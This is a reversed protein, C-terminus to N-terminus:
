LRAELFRRLKLSSDLTPLFLTCGVFDDDEITFVNQIFLLQSDESAFRIIPMNLLAGLMDIAYAPVTSKTELDTMMYVANMYSSAMINGIELLASKEYDSMDGLGNLLELGLALLISQAIQPKFLILFVGDLEGSIDLMISVMEDEESGLRKPMDRYEILEVRPTRVIFSKSSLKSLASLARGCGINGLEMLMDSLTRNLEASLLM